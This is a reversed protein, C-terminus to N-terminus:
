LCYKKILIKAKIELKPVYILSADSNDTQNWWYNWHIYSEHYSSNKNQCRIELRKSTTWDTYHGKNLDLSAANCNISVFEM